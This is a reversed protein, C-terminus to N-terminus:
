PIDVFVDNGDVRVTYTPVSTGRAPFTCQGTRVDYMWGHWPCTSGPGSLKGEGAPRRSALLRRRPTSRTPPVRSCSASGTYRSWTRRGAAVEDLSAVRAESM